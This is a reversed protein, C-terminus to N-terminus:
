SKYTPTPSISTVTTLRLVLLRLLTWLTVVYGQYLWSAGGDLDISIDHIHCNCEMVSLKMSGEQYDLGLLLGVEM